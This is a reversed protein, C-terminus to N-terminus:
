RSPPEHPEETTHDNVVREWTDDPLRGEAFLRDDAKVKDGTKVDRFRVTLVRESKDETRVQRLLGDDPDLWYDIRVYEKAARSKPKPRLELHEYTKAKDAPTADAKTRPRKWPELAAKGKYRVEFDKLLTDRKQGFPHPFPLEEVDLISIPDQDPKRFIHVYRQRQGPRDEVYVRGDFRFVEKKGDTFEIRIDSPNKYIMRGLRWENEDILTQRFEYDFRADLKTIKKGAEEALRLVRDVDPDITTEDTGDTAPSEAAPVDGAPGAPTGEPPDADAARCSVAALGVMAAVWVMGRTWRPKM